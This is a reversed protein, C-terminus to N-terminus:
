QVNQIHKISGFHNVAWIDYDSNAPSSKRKTNSLAFICYKKLQIAKESSSYGCEAINPNGDPDTGTIYGEMDSSSVLYEPKIFCTSSDSFGDFNAQTTACVSNSHDNENLYTICDANNAGTKCDTSGTLCNFPSGWDSAKHTGGINYHLEGSPKVGLMRFDPYYGTPCSARNRELSTHVISLNLKVEAKRIKALYKNWSVYSISTLLSIIAVTTLLEILSFGKKTKKLFVFM